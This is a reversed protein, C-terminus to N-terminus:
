LHPLFDTWHTKVFAKEPLSRLSVIVGIILLLRGNFYIAAPVHFFLSRPWTRKYRNALELSTKTYGSKWFLVM